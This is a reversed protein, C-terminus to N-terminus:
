YYVFVQTCFYTIDKKERKSYFSFFPNASPLGFFRFSYRFALFFSNDVFTEIGLSNRMNLIQTACFCSLLPLFLKILRPSPYSAISCATSCAFATHFPFAVCPLFTADPIESMRARCVRGCAIPCVPFLTQLLCDCTQFFASQTVHSRVCCSSAWFGQWRGVINEKERPHFSRAVRHKSIRANRM